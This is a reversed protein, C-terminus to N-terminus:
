PINSPVVSKFKRLASLFQNSLRYQWKEFSRKLLCAVGRRGFLGWFDSVNRSWLNLQYLFRPSRSKLSLIEQRYGEDLDLNKLQQEQAYGNVIIADYLFRKRFQFTPAMSLIPDTSNGTKTLISLINRRAIINNMGDSSLNRYTSQICQVKRWIFLSEPIVFIRKGLRVCDMLFLLDAGIHAEKVYAIEESINREYCMTFPHFVWFPIITSFLLLRASNLNELSLDFEIPSCTTYVYKDDEDIVTFGFAYIQRGPKKDIQYKMRKLTFPMLADDDGMLIVYKGKAQRVLFNWNETLGLNHPQRFFSINRHKKLYPEIITAIEEIRPSCDDSLIIEYDEFENELISDVSKKLFNPRNYTPILISFTPRMLEGSIM